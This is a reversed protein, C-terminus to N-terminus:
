DTKMLSFVSSTLIVGVSFVVFLRVLIALFSSSSFSFIATKKIMIPTIVARIVGIRLFM